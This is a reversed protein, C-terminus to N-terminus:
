WIEFAGFMRNTDADAQGICSLNFHSAAAPVAKSTTFLKISDRMLDELGSQRAISPPLSRLLYTWKVKERHHWSM